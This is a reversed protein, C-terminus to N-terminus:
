KSPGAPPTDLFSERGAQAPDDGPVRVMGEQSASAVLRGDPAYISARALGRGGSAAPTDQQYLHWSAADVDGHFWMSHDLTALSLGPELWHIGHGRLVPELMVQDCTYLLLARAVTQCVGAPVDGRTRMWLLQSSGREQPRSVYLPSDVHRVDMALTKGLFKAVPHEVTRFLEIASKLEGPGPVGAPMSDAFELGIQEVQFSSVLTMIAEGGQYVATRRRSFSRGDHLREVRFELPVDLAGPRLFVAHVSHPLRAADDVGSTAGCVAAGPVTAAAALLAQAMVQGGYVRGGLQPLSTGM